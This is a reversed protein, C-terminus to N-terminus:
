LKSKTESHGVFNQGELKKHGTFVLFNYLQWDYRSNATMGGETFKIGRREMDAIIFPDYKTFNGTSNSPVDGNSITVRQIVREGTFDKLVYHQTLRNDWMAITGATWSYRVSFQPKKVFNTLFELLDKSEEHSLEVIRRTFHENVYIGKLGTVPHERIVPHIAMVEDARGHPAADHLATLNSLFDQMPQSLANYASNLNVWMTDGGVEPCVRMNLISMLPPNPTCTLDTHYEDAVGGKSASLQFLERFGSPNDLNPHGELHGEPPCMKKGFAIHEKEVLHQEPFFLVKHEVLLANIESAELASINKLNVGTVEAGLSGAIRKIQM